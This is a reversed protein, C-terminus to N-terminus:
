SKMFFLALGQSRHEPEWRDHTRSERGFFVDTSEHNRREPGRFDASFATARDAMLNVLEQRRCFGRHGAIVKLKQFDSADM